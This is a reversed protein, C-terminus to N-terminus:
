RPSRPRDMRSPWAGYGLLALLLAVLGGLLVLSTTPSAPDHVHVITSRDRVRIATPGPSSPKWWATGRADTLGVALEREGPLGRRVTARVQAGVVPRSLDDLLTIGSEQGVVPPPDVTPEASAILWLLAIM